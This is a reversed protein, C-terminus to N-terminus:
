GEKIEKEARIVAKDIRVIVLTGTEIKESKLYLHPITLRGGQQVRLVLGKGTGNM